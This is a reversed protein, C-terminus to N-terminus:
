SWQSDSADVETRAPSDCVHIKEPEVLGAEDPANAITALCESCISDYSGDFRVWHVYGNM